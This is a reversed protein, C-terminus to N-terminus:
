PAPRRGPGPGGPRRPPEFWGRGRELLGASGHCRGPRHPGASRGAGRPDHGDARHGDRTAPRRRPGPGQDGGQHRRASRRHRPSRRRRDPRAAVQPVVAPLGAVAPPLGRGRRGGPLRRSARRHASLGASSEGRHPGPRRAAPGLRGPHRGRGAGRPARAALLQGPHPRRHRRLHDRAGGVVAARPRRAGTRRGRAPAAGRPLRRTRALCGSRAPDGQGGAPRQVLAPPPCRRRRRRPVPLQGRAPPRRRRPVPPRLGLSVRSRRRRSRLHGPRRRGRRVRRAAPAALLRLLLVHAPTLDQLEDVLLHRCRAQAQRRREGDRLLLEAAGYVQEDFDVVGAAALERRYPDFAAALGPVDDREAEVEEPDRLGLRALSLAELYPGIPDTNLRRRQAPVLEAVLRRVEREDLVRPARGHAETLLSYGLANLTQVRPRFDTTRAEMEQQARKNYAVALVCEREFRRDVVLHRLRETLVRTKGSGAPAIVRAPGAGHAVAALQDAALEATPPAPAPVLTLRGLEVSDSHVVGAGDVTPFCTRPGGDVWVREGDPLEVDGPGGAGDDLARAGLREAKRGWWWVPPGDRADYTNAWVLFHLRDLWPEFWPGLRWPDDDWTMPARFTAPDVGLEVVVPTRALWADHLAAVATAPDDLTGADVRVVPAGDWADPVADGALVVVGRGLALPGPAPM